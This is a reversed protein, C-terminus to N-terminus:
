TLINNIFHIIILVSVKRTIALIFISIVSFFVRTYIVKFSFEFHAFAFILSIGAILAFDLFSPGKDVISELRNEPLFNKVFSLRFAVEETIASICYIVISITIYTIDYEFLAFTTRRLPLLLLLILLSAVVYDKLRMSSNPIYLGVTKILCAINIIIVIAFLTILIYNCDVVLDYFIQSATTSVLCSFM